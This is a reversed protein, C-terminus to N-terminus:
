ASTDQDSPKGAFVADYPISWGTTRKGALVKEGFVANEVKELLREVQSVRVTTGAFFSKVVLDPRFFIKADSDNTWSRPGPASQILAVGRKELEMRFDGYAAEDFFIFDVGIMQQEVPIKSALVARFFDGPCSFQVLMGSTNAAEPEHRRRRRRPMGELVELRHVLEDNQAMTIRLQRPEYFYDFVTKQLMNQYSALRTRDIDSMGSVDISLLWHPLFFLDIFTVSGSGNPIVMTSEPPCITGIREIETAQSLGLNRCLRCAALWLRGIEDRFVSVCQGCFAIKVISM